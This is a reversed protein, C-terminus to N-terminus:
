SGSLRRRVNFIQEGNDLVLSRKTGVADHVECKQRADGHHTGDVELSTTLSEKVPSPAFVYTVGPPSGHLALVEKDPLHHVLEVNTHQEDNNMGVESFFM